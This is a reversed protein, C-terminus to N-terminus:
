EIRHTSVNIHAHPIGYFDAVLNKVEVVLPDADMETERGIRVPEIRIFPVRAAGDRSVTLEAGLIRSFDENHSFVATHLVIGERALLHALQITLQEDFAAALRDHHLNEYGDADFTVVSETSLSAFFDAMDFDSALHRLPGVVVAILVFGTVLSVFKRYKGAPALMHAVAALLLYYTINTIHSFFTQM